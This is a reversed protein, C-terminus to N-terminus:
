LNAQEQRLHNKMIEECCRRIAPMSAGQGIRKHAELAAERLEIPLLTLGRGTRLARELDAQTAATKPMGCPGSGLRYGPNHIIRM